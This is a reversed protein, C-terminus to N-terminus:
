QTSDHLAAVVSARGCHRVRAKPPCVTREWCVTSRPLFRLERRSSSPSTGDRRFGGWRTPTSTGLSCPLRAPARCMLRAPPSASTPAPRCFPPPRCVRAARCFGQALRLALTIRAWCGTRRRGAARRLQPLTRPRRLGLLRLEAPDRLCHYTETRSNNTRPPPPPPVRVPVSAPELVPTPVPMPM